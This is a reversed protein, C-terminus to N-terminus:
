EQSKREDFPRAFRERREEPTEQERMARRIRDGLTEVETRQRALTQERRNRARDRFDVFAPDLDLNGPYQRQFDGRQWRRRMRDQLATQERATERRFAGAGTVFAEREDEQARRFAPSVENVDRTGFNYMNSRLRDRGASLVGQLVSGPAEAYVDVIRAVDFPLGAQRLVSEM